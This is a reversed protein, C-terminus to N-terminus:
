TQKKLRELIKKFEKEEQLSRLDFDNAMKDADKFGHDVAKRLSEMAKEKEGLLAQARALGYWLNPQDPDIEAAVSYCLALRAFDGYEKFSRALYFGHQIRVVTLLRKAQLRDDKLPAEKAKKKLENVQLFALVHEVKPVNESTNRIKRNVSALKQRFDYDIQDRRAEQQEWQKVEDSESL